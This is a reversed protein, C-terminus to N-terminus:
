KALRVPTLDYCLKPEGTWQISKIQEEADVEVVRSCFNEERGGGFLSSVSIGGHGGYSGLSVGITPTNSSDKSNWIYFKREAIRQEKTPVGWSNFLDTLSVNDWANIRQNTQEMSVCGTLIVTMFLVIIAKM